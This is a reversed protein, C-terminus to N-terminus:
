KLRLATLSWGYGSSYRLSAPDVRDSLFTLDNSTWLMAVPALNKMVQVDFRGLARVRAKGKLKRSLIDFAKSYAANGPGFPGPMNLTAGILSAPDPSPSCSGVGVVLDIPPNAGSIAVILDFGAYGRMEIRSSEFGVGVLAQRVREAVAPGTSGASQYAVTINGDGLHGSALQRAKAVNAHLSYPQLRQATVSGPFGPPLLHTLPTTAYPSFEGAIATRDVAWNVAQRLATNGSFLSRRQNFLLPFECTTPKVWFRGSGVPRTRSVGYDHAVGAVQDRPLCGIDLQNAKTEDFCTDLDLGMELEVEDLHRGRM